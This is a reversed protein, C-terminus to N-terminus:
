GSIKDAEFNLAFSWIRLKFDGARRFHFRSRCFRTKYDIRRRRWDAVLAHPTAGRVALILGGSAFSQGWGGSTGINAFLTFLLWVSLIVALYAWM